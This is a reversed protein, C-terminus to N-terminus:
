ASSRQALVDPRLAVQNRRVKTVNRELSRKRFHHYVRVIDPWMFSPAVISLVPIAIIWFSAVSESSYAPLHLNFVYMIDSHGHHISWMNEFNMGQCYEAWAETSSVVPECLIRHAIDAALVCHHVVDLSAQTSM